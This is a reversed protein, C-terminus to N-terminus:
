DSEENAFCGCDIVKMAGNIVLLIDGQQYRAWHRRGRAGSLLSSSSSGRSSGSPRIIVSRIVHTTYLSCWM